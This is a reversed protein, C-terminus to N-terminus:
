RAARRGPHEGARGARRPARGQGPRDRRRGQGAQRGAPLVRGAQAEVPRAHLPLNVPRRLPTVRARLHRGDRLGLIVCLEWYHRFGTDDGAKRAKELYEAYRAPVFSAPADAPVKRGGSANLNKLIAVAAMLDATGPGGTFDVAALVGPTFQRLYPYSTDMASLRGHDKALPKWAGAAVDQLVSMGIRERLLGGVQEDPILPDALVPLIVDMLLQRSEGKKAREALEEGTRTRARSERASVAQDFLAIVEDLQDVASQAVLALLIPYRREERRMLAQVTSRRGVTALFRRREAPLMSLDM